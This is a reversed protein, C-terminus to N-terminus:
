VFRPADLYIFINGLPYFGAQEGQAVSLAEVCRDGEGLFGHRVRALPRSKGVAAVDLGVASELRGEDRVLMDKHSM